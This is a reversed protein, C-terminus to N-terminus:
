LRQGPMTKSVSTKILKQVAEEQGCNLFALPCWLALIM